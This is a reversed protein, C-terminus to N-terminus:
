FQCIALLQSDFNASFKGSSLMLLISRFTQLYDRLQMQPHEM